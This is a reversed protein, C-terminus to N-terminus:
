NMGHMFLGPVPLTSAQSISALAISCSNAAKKSIFTTGCPPVSWGEADCSLTGDKINPISSADNKESRQPSASNTQQLTLSGNSQERQPRRLNPKTQRRTPM